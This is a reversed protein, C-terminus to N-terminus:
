SNEYNLWFLLFDDEFSKEYFYANTGYFVFYNEKLYKTRKSDKFIVYKHKILSFSKTKM